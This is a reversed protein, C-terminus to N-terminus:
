SIFTLDSNLFKTSSTSKYNKRKWKTPQEEKKSKLVFKIIPFIYERLFLINHFPKQIKLLCPGISCPKLVDCRLCIYRSFPILSIFNYNQRSKFIPGLDKVNEAKQRKLLSLLSQNVFLAFICM